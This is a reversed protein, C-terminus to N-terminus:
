CAPRLGSIHQSLATCTCLYTMGAEKQGEKACIWADADQHQLEYPGAATCTCLCTM